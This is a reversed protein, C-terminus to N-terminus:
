SGGTTTSSQAQLTTAVDPADVLPAIFRGESRRRLLWAEFDILARESLQKKRGQKDPKRKRGKADIVPIADLPPMMSWIVNSPSFGTNGVARLVGRCHRWLGGLATTPPPTAQPLGQLQDLLMMSTLLGSATSEVYGEVGTIQGAFYVSPRARLRGHDDLVTPADVYTNRHIAGYRLFRVEKLAPILAFVERQAGQKMRTQCGVLNYSSGHIDEKRLQLVAHARQNTVPHFLGVPKMPGFRLTDKGREAMVEIPLCGDFYHLDEFEHATTKDAARLADYFVDYQAPNMPCNLYDASDGKNWRSKFFAGGAPDEDDTTISEADVIPAIADYFALREQGCLRAIDAALADSTLPGTCVLTLVGSAADDSGDDNPLARVEGPVITVNPHARLRGEVTDAFVVRDVALADGAPVRAVEACAMLFSGARRMEEKLLGVANDVNSSRFSNSCVLEALRDSTQAPTRKEPKQEHLTVRVGAHALQWAAECGALGGGIVRVHHSM